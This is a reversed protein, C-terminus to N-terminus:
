TYYRWKSESNISDVSTEIESLHYKFTKDMSKDVFDFTGNKLQFSNLAYYLTATDTEQNELITDQVREVSDEAVEKMLEGFNTRISDYKEFLIDPSELVLSDVIFRRQLPKIDALALHLNDFKVLTDGDVTTTLFHDIDINGFLKFSQLNKIPRHM